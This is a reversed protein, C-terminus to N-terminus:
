LGEPNQPHEKIIKDLWLVDLWKGFKYGTNRHIGIEKFGFKRHLAFSKENPLAILAYANYYNQLSLEEFLRSYLETGIGKECMDNKIYISVDVDYRYAAREHHRSAYAYGIVSDDSTCVFYPYVESMSKIRRAFSELSPTETEFTAITNEIYYSYIDLIEKSDNETVKRILQKSM